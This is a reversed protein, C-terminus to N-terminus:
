CRKSEILVTNPATDMTVPEKSLLLTTNEIANRLAWGWSKNTNGGTLCNPQALMKALLQYLM